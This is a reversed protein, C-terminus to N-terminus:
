STEVHEMRGFFIEGDYFIVSRVIIGDPTNKGRRAINVLAENGGDLLLMEENLGCSCKIRLVPEKGVYFLQRETLSSYFPVGYGRELVEGNGCRSVFQISKALYIDAKGGCNQHILKIDEIGQDPGLNETFFFKLDPVPSKKNRSFWGLLNM